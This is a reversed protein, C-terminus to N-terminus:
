SFLARNTPPSRYVLWSLFLLVEKRPNRLKLSFVGWKATIITGQLSEAWSLGSEPETRWSIALSWPLFVEHRCPTARSASSQFCRLHRVAVRLRVEARKEGNGRIHDLSQITSRDTSEFLIPQPSVTQRFAMRLGFTVVRVKETVYECRRRTEFGTIRRGNDM